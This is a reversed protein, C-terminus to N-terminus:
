FDVELQVVVSAAISNAPQGMDMVQNSGTVTKTVVTNGVTCTLKVTAPSTTFASGLTTLENILTMM